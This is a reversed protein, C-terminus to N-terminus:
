CAVPPGDGISDPPPPHHIYLDPTPATVLDEIIRDHIDQLDSSLLRQQRCRSALSTVQSLSSIQLAEAIERLRHAGQELAISATLMRSMGGRGTRIDNIPLQCHRSVANLIIEISPRGINRQARPIERDNAQRASILGQIMRLFGEDGLACQARVRTWLEDQDRGEGRAVFEQYALRAAVPDSSHFAELVGDVDLWDPADELGATARYSSWQWDAATSVLGARVPNLVVYRLVELFYNQEEILVAHFRGQFLHGVRNYRRNIYQAYLQNLRQMGRSLNPEPTKVFLHYHNGLQTWSFVRWRFRHVVDSLISLFRLRDHEDFFITKRENGRSTIHYVADPYEIRLPRAM